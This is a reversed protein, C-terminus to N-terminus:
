LICILRGVEERNVWLFHINSELAAKETANFATNHTIAPYLKEVDMSGVELTEEQWSLQEEKRGLLDRAQTLAPDTQHTQQRSRRGPNVRRGGLTEEAKRWGEEQEKVKKNCDMVMRLADETSRLATGEKSEKEEIIRYLISSIFNSLRSNPAEQAQCVERMPPDEGGKHDKRLGVVPPVTGNEMTTARRFRELKRDDGAGLGFIRVLQKMLNNCSQESNRIDLEQAVRDEQGQTLKNTYNQQTDSCLRNSKDTSCIMWDSDRMKEKIEEWGEMEQKTLNNSGKVRGKHDCNNRRFEQITELLETKQAQIMIEERDPAPAPMIVRRCTKLDTPRLKTLELTNSSKDYTQRQTEERQKRMMWEDITEDECKDLMNYRQQVCLQEIETEEAKLDIPQYTRFNPPLRMFAKMNESLQTGGYAAPEPIPLDVQELDQDTVLVGGLAQVKKKIEGEERATTVSQNWELKSRNRRDLRWKLRDVENKVVWTLYKGLPSTPHLMEETERSLQRLKKEERRRAAEKIMEMKNLIRMSERKRDMVGTGYQSYM